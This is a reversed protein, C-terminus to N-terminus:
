IGVSCIREPYETLEFHQMLISWELFCPWKWGLIQGTLKYTSPAISIGCIIIMMTMMLPLCVGNLAM